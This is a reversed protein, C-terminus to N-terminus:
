GAKAIKIAGADVVVSQSKTKGDAWQWKVVHRGPTVKIHAQPTRGVYRGDVYVKAPPSGSATGVKLTGMRPPMFPAAPPPTSPKPKAKPTGPDRPLVFSVSQAASGDFGIAITRSSYGPASATMSYRAKPERSLEVVHPVERRTTKGDVEVVLT